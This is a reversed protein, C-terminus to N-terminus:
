RLQLLIAEKCGDDIAAWTEKYLPVLRRNHSGLEIEFTSAYAGEFAGSQAGLPVSIKSGLIRMRKESEHGVVLKPGIGSHRCQMTQAEKPGHTCVSKPELHATAQSDSITSAEFWVERRHRLTPAQADSSSPSPKSQLLGRLPNPLLPLPLTESYFPYPCAHQTSSPLSRLGM